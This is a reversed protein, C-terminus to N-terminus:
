PMDPLQTQELTLLWENSVDIMSQLSIRTEEDTSQTRERELDVLTSRTFDIYRQKSQRLEKAKQEVIGKYQEPDTGKVENANAMLQNIQQIEMDLKSKSLSMRVWHSNSRFGLIYKKHKALFARESGETAAEIADLEFGVAGPWTATVLYSGGLHVGQPLMAEITQVYNERNLGALDGALLDTVVKTTAPVIGNPPAFMAYTDDVVFILAIVAREPEVRSGFQVSVLRGKLLYKDTPNGPKAPGKLPPAAPTATRLICFLTLAILLIPTRM